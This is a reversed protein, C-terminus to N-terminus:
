QNLSWYYCQNFVFFALALNTVILWGMWGFMIGLAILILVGFVIQLYRGMERSLGYLVSRILLAISLGLISVQLGIFPDYMFFLWITEPLILLFYLLIFHILIKVKSHPFNRSFRLYTIEFENSQYFLVSHSIVIALISMGAIRVEMGKDHFLANMGIIIIASIIKTIGYTLKIRYIIQYLFLSFLPKPWNKIARLEDSKTKKEILNNITVTYYWASAAILLLLYVPIIVPIFYYNFVFGVVVAFLGLAIIPISIVSQVILWSGFQKRASMANSSYFLFQYQMLVLQSAVYKCSKITYALWITFLVAMAVPSSVSTLALKLNHLLIEDKTLHTQNLVSTFFFNIFIVVFLTLLLGAHVKYFSAALTKLLIKTLPAFM